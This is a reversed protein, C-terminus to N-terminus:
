KSFQHIFTDDRGRLEVLDWAEQVLELVADYNWTIFHPPIAEAQILKDIEEQWGLVRIHTHAVQERSTFTGLYCSLFQQELSHGAGTIDIDELMLFAAFSSGYQSHLEAIENQVESSFTRQAAADAIDATHTEDLLQDIEHDTLRDNFQQLLLLAEDKYKEPTTNPHEKM